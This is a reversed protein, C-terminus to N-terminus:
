ERVPARASVNTRLHPRKPSKSNEQSSLFCRATQDVEKRRASSTSEARSTDEADIVAVIAGSSAKYGIQVPSQKPNNNKTTQTKKTTCRTSIRAQVCRFADSRECKCVTRECLRIRLMRPIAVSVLSVFNDIACLSIRTMGSRRTLWSIASSRNFSLLITVRGSVSSNFMCHTRRNNAGDHIYELNIRNNSETISNGGTSM